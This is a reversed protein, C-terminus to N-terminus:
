RDYLDQLSKYKYNSKVWEFAYKLDNEYLLIINKDKVSSVKADVQSTHYGKVEVLTGDELVFDPYYKYTKGEFEYQYSTKCREFKIGHDLNYIIYVLEYTSDCFFGKYWGKKGRGSGEVRGGFGTAKAYISIKERRALETEETNGRGSPRKIAGSDYGNKITSSM